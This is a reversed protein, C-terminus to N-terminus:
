RHFRYFVTKSLSATELELEHLEGRDEQWCHVTQPLEAETPASTAISKDPCVVEVFRDFLGQRVATECIRAAMGFSIRLASRVNEVYIKDPNLKAIAEVNGGLLPDGPVFKSITDFFRTLLL